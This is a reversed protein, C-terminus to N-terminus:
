VLRASLSGAIMAAKAKAKEAIVGAFQADVIAVFLEVWRDFHEPTLPELNHLHQHVALPNGFYVPHGLLMKEWFNVIVPLHVALDLQVVKTFFHGILADRMAVEYFAALLKEIQPRTTIDPLTKIM